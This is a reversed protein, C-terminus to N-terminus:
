HLSRPMGGPSIFPCVSPIDLYIIFLLSPCYALNSSGFAVLWHFPLIGKRTKPVSGAKTGSSVLWLLLRTKLLFSEAVERYYVFYYSGRDKGLWAMQEHLHTRPMPSYESVKFDLNIELGLSRSCWLTALCNLIRKISEFLFRSDAFPQQAVLGAVLLLHWIIGSQRTSCTM